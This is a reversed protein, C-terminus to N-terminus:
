FFFQESVIKGNKVHFVCVEEKSTRPMGIFTVERKLVVTFYDGAVLPESCSQSHIAEIKARNAVSKAKIAEKGRTIVPIGLQAVHEPEQGFVDDAHLTDQIETWKSERALEYYRNAVEQTTMVLEQTIM